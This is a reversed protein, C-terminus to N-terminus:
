PSPAATGAPLEEAWTFGCSPCKSCMHETIRGDMGACAWQRASGFSILVPLEHHVPVAGEASCRPCPRGPQFAGLTEQRTM